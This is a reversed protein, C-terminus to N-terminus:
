FPKGSKRLEKLYAQGLYAPVKEPDHERIDEEKYSLVTIQM